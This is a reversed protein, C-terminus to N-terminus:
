GSARLSLHTTTFREPSKLGYGLMRDFAIHAAWILAIHILMDQRQALGIAGVAATGLYSHALNYSMAGIRPNRLYALIALDPVLIFAFFFIWSGGLSQYTILLAAFVVTSELRLWVWWRKQNSIHDTM